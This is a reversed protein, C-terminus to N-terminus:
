DRAGGPGAEPAVVTLHAGVVAEVEAGEAAAREESPLKRVHPSTAGGRPGQRRALPSLIWAPRRCNM